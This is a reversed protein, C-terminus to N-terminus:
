VYHRRDKKGLATPWQPRTKPYFIDQAGNSVLNLTGAGPNADMTGSFYGVSVVNGSPDVDVAKAEEYLSNGTQVVWDFTQANLHTGFLLICVFLSLIRPFTM